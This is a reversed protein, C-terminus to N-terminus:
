RRTQLMEIGTLHSIYELDTDTWNIGTDYGGPCLDVLELCALDDAGFGRLLNPHLQMEGFAKLRLKEGPQLFVEKNGVASIKIQSGVSDNKSISGIANKDPFKFYLKTGSNTKESKVLFKTPAESAALKEKQEGASNPSVEMGLKIPIPAPLKSTNVKATLPRFILFYGVASFLILVLSTLTAWGNRGM